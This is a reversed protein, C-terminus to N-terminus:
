KNGDKSELVACFMVQATGPHLNAAAVRKLEYNQDLLHLLDKCGSTPSPALYLIRKIGLKSLALMAKQGVPKRMPNIIAVDFQEGKKVLKPAVTGIKGGRFHVNKVALQEASQQASKIASYNVDVGLVYSAEDALMLSMGGTGCTCDLIRKERAEAWRSVWAYVASARSPTPQTWSNVSESLEIQYVSKQTPWIGSFIRVERRVKGGIAMFIDFEHSKDLISLFSDWNQAEFIAAIGERGEVVEVSLFDQDSLWRAIIKMGKQVAKSNAPCDEISIIEGCRDRLGIRGNEVNMKSRVRHEGRKASGIVEISEIEWSIKLYRKIVEHLLLQKYADEEKESVHLLACGTCNEAHHCNPSIRELARQHVKTVVGVRGFKREYLTVDVKEDPLGGEVLFSEQKESFALVRGRAFWRDLRVNTFYRIQEVENKM